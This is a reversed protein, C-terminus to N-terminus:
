GNLVHAGAGATTVIHTATTDFLDAAAPKLVADQGTSFPANTSNQTSGTVFLDSHSRFPVWYLGSTFVPSRYAFCPPPAAFNKPTCNQLQAQSYGASAQFYTAPATNASYNLTVTYQGNPLYSYGRQRDSVIIDESRGAESIAMNANALSARLAFTDYFPYTLDFRLSVDRAEVADSFRYASVKFDALKTRLACASSNVNEKCVPNTLEFVGYVGHMGTHTDLTGDIPAYATGVDRYGFAGYYRLRDGYVTHLDIVAPDRLTSFALDVTQSDPLGQTGYRLLTSFTRHTTKSAYADAASSGTESYALSIQSDTSHQLLPRVSPYFGPAPTALSSRDATVAFVDVGLASTPGTFLKGYQLVDDHAVGNSATTGNLATAGFLSDASHLFKYGADIPYTTAKFSFPAADVGLSSLDVGLVNTSTLALDFPKTDDAEFTGCSRCTFAAAHAKDLLASATTDRIQLPKGSDDSFSSTFLDSKGLPVRANVAIRHPPVGTIHGFDASAWVYRENWLNAARRDIEIFSRQVPPTCTSGAPEQSLPAGCYTVPRNQSWATHHVTVAFSSDGGLASDLAAYGITLRGTWGGATRTVKASCQQHQLEYPLSKNITECTGNADVTATLVTGEPAHVTQLYDPGATRHVFLQFGTNRFITQETRIAHDTFTFTAVLGTKGLALTVPPEPDPALTRSQILGIACAAVSAPSALPATAPATSRLHPENVPGAFAPGDYGYDVKAALVARESCDPPAPVDNPGPSADARAALVFGLACCLVAAFLRADLTRTPPRNTMRLTRRM